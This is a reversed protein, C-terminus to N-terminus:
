INQSLFYRVENMGRLYVEVYSNICNPDIPGTNLVEFLARHATTSRIREVAMEFARFDRGKNTVSNPPDKLINLNYPTGDCKLSVMAARRIICPVCYGCHATPSNKAYRGSEPHSCSMTLAALRKLVDLNKTESLMEGKTQFRYPLEVSTSINLLALVSQYLLIFYPHTTRTSLSGIRSQTLPVNLSILGNEAVVLSKANPHLNAVFTGLALFLISRSRMSPEGKGTGRKRPQVYFRYSTFRDPYVKQLEELLRAQVSKTVGAGYHGAFAVNRGDELLDIVGVLSDLGGSFLCVTDVSSTTAVKSKLEQLVQNKRLKISWRDGTLFELMQEVKLLAKTWLTLDFVPLHIVLERTWRDESFSRRIKLDATYVSIALNLLEVVETKPSAFVKNLTEKVLNNRVSYPSSPNDIAIILRLENPLLDPLYNDNPGVRVIINWSM